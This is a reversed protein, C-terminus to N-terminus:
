VRIKSEKRKRIVRNWNISTNINNSINIYTYNNYSFCYTNNRHEQLKKEKVKM